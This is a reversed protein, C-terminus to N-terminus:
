EAKIEYKQMKHMKRLGDNKVFDIIVNINNDSIKNNYEDLYRLIKEYTKNLYEEYAEKSTKFGGYYKSTGNKDNISFCYFNGNSKIGVPLDISVSHQFTIVKNLTQPIFMCNRPSYEKNLNYAFTKFDKELVVVENDLEYYNSYFWDGFNQFEQWEKCVKVNEYVKNGHYNKNYCRAIMSHWVLYEKTHKYKGNIDLYKSKYKGKKYIGVDYVM